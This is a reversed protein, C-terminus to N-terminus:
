GSGTGGSVLINAGGEVYGILEAAVEEPVTGLAVLDSLDGAVLRHCRISLCPLRSVSGLVASLRPGDPLRVEAIPSSADIRRGIRGVQMRIFAELEEATGFGPNIREGSGRLRKVFGISPGNVLVDTVEPDDLYPQLPGARFLWDYIARALAERGQPGLVPGAALARERDTQACFDVLAAWARAEDDAGPSVFVRESLEAMIRM